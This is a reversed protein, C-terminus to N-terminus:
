GTIFPFSGGPMPNSLGVSGSTKNLGGNLAVYEFDYAVRFGSRQGIKPSLYPMLRAKTM